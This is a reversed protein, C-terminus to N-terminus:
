SSSPSTALEPFCRALMRQTHDVLNRHKLTHSKLPFDWPTRIISAVFAFMVADLVTPADGFAWPRSGLWHGLADVDAIGLRWIEAPAHRGLGHGRMAKIVSRQILTGVVPMLWGPLGTAGAIYSKVNDANDPDAWRAFVAAWYLHEEMLRQFALSQAREALTLRGDVAHGTLKELHDVILGSDALPQGDIEVYPAKGTSSKPAGKIVAITYDLKALRLYTELKICFPSPNPLGY